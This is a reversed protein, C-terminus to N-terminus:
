AVRQSRADTGASRARLIAIGGFLATLGGLIAYVAFLIAITLAAAGPYAIAVVGAVIGIVGWVLLWGHVHGRFAAVIQAAGTVFFYAALLVVFSALTIGPLVLALVGVVITALGWLALVVRGETSRAGSFAHIVEFIGTVLAFWGFLAVLTLLTLGPFVIAAIGALIALVGVVILAWAAGATPTYASPRFYVVVAEKRQFIEICHM